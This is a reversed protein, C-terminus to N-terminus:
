SDKLVLLSRRLMTRGLENVAEARITYTGSPVVRGADNKGNWFVGYTGPVLTGSFLQRVIGGYRDRVSFSLAADNALAVSSMVRGGIRPSVAMRTKSVRLFGLTNNLVFRQEMLSERGRDDLAYAIWRWKGEPLLPSTLDKRVTSAQLPGAYRWAVAGDPQVLVLDVTSPRVIKASLSQVDAVGDANPSFKAYRPEPAHIGYYMFMLADAVPRESGDSPRNLVRGDFAMTTSGGGDLAMARVAGLRAMEAALEWTRMGISFWSRGDVAVLIIRGDALQGVATRPHRLELQYSTFQERTSSVPVGNKVLLPGGGLAAAADPWWKALDIRLVVTRGPRAERKLYRIRTDGRAQLVAGGPPIASGGGRRVRVATGILDQNPRTSPVKAIVVDFATEVAPTRSAWAPTFLAFGRGVLRKNVHTIHHSSRGPVTWVSSHAIKGVYLDGAGSIGLSSRGRQPTTALVGRRMFMGSPALTLAGFFDGNVGAVTARRSLRRQMGSVTERTSVANNALIPKVDYLGGPRPGTLVHIVMPGASTWRDERTYTIGPVVESAAAMAVGPVALATLSVAVWVRRLM